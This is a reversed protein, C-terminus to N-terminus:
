RSWKTLSAAPQRVKPPPLEAPYGINVIAVLQEADGVGAAMRAGPDDMVAGTKIHTGLGLSVALLAINEIGMMATAYDEQRTEASEARVVAVGLMVPLARHEAAIRERLADAAEPDDLKRAKRSGLVLGYARRAEPGLVYFRCPQTLHHNPAQIAAEILREILERSVPRDEFKKISRRHTIAQAVDMYQEGTSNPGDM